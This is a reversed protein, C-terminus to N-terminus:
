LFRLYNHATERLEKRRRSIRRDEGSWQIIGAKESKERIVAGLV